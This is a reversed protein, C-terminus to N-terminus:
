FLGGTRLVVGDRLEFVIGGIQVFGIAHPKDDQVLLTAWKMPSSRPEIRPWPAMHMMVDNQFIVRAVFTEKAKQSATRKPENRAAAAGEARRMNTDKLRELLGSDFKVHHAACAASCGHRSGEHHPRVAVLDLAAGMVDEHGALCQPSPRQRAVAKKIWFDKIGCEAFM